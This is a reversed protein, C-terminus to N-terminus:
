DFLLGNMKATNEIKLLDIKERCRRLASRALGTNPKPRFRGGVSRVCLSVVIGSGM